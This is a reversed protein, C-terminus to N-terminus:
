LRTQIQMLNFRLKISVPKTRKRFLKPNNNNKKTHLHQIIWTFVMQVHTLRALYDDEECISCVEVHV